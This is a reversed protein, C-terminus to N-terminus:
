QGAIAHWRWRVATWVAGAQARVQHYGIAFLQPLATTGVVDAPKPGGFVYLEILGSEAIWQTATGESAPKHVDVFM